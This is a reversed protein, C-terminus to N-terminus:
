MKKHQPPFLIEYELYKAHQSVNQTGHSLIGCPNLSHYARLQQFLKRLIIDRNQKFADLKLSTEINKSSFLLIYHNLFHNQVADQM